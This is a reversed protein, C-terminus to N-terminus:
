PAGAAHTLQHGDDALPATAGWTGEFVLEELPKRSRPSTEAERRSEDDLEDPDGLYGIAVGAM